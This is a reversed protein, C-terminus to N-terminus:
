QRSRGCGSGSVHRNPDGLGGWALEAPVRLYQMFIVLLTFALSPFPLAASLPLISAADVIVGM